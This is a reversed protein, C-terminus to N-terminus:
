SLWQLALRQLATVDTYGVPEVGWRKLKELTMGSSIRPEPSRGLEFVALVRDPNRMTEPVDAVEEVQGASESIEFVAYHCSRLLALAVEDQGWGAPTGFDAAIMGDYGLGGLYDRLPRLGDNLRGYWGGIFVRREPGVTSQGLIRRPLQRAASADEAATSRLLVHPDPLLDGRGILARVQVAFQALPPGAFGFVFILNHAAPRELEDFRQSEEALSAADEIFASLTEERAKDTQGALLLALGGNHLAEGKHYRRGEPQADRVLQYATHWTAAAGAFDGANLQGVADTSLRDHQVKLRPPWQQILQM